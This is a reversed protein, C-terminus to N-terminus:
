NAKIPKGNKDVGYYMADDEDDRITIRAGRGDLFGGGNSKGGGKNEKPAPPKPQLFDFLGMNLATSTTPRNTQPAFGSVTVAMIIPAILKM